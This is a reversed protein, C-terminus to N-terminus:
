LSLMLFFCCGGEFMGLERACCCCCCIGEIETSLDLGGAVGLAIALETSVAEGVTKNGASLTLSQLPRNETLPRGYIVDQLKQCM